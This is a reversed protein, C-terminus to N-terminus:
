EAAGILFSFILLMLVVATIGVYLSDHEVGFLVVSAAVRAVPTAILVLLGLMVISQGRLERTGHLVSGISATYNAKADILAGLAPRSRFYDHHHLFTLTIGFVVIAISLAVGGRLIWSIVSEIIHSQSDSM